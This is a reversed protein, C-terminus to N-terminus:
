ALRPRLDLGKALLKISGGHQSVLRAAEENLMAILGEFNISAKTYPHEWGRNSSAISVVLIGAHCDEAAMYKKFLQDKLTERLKAATWNPKEGLKLEIVGQQNSSTARLRIDTENEDATVAEQDVRYTHNKAMKTANTM